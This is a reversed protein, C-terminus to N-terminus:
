HVEYYTDGFAVDCAMDRNLKLKSNLMDIAEKVVGEMIKKSRDADKVQVLLEDHWQGCIPFEVGFRDKSIKNCYAVWMDFIYSGSGQILTSFRDKETKLHYWFGNIPNYQWKQGSSDKKVTTNESITKISWNVKWYGDFLQKGTEEDVGANESITKAGASYQCAYNCTKGQSRIKDLSKFRHGEDDDLDSQDKQKAWKYWDSDGQKMLGAGVAILLHPDFDDSMQSKVYEPDLPWQFHHKLRDELSSLDSGLFTRGEDAVLLSRIEKGYAKRGSPINVLEAHKLRLTNTFAHARAQLLGGRKNASDIFGRVIGIRHNIVGLGELAKVEPVEKALRVISPCIDKDETLIQPIKKETYPKIWKPKIRRKSHRSKREADEKAAQKEAKYEEPDKDKKAKKFTEPKWGLRFLWDKVQQHSAPNPEKYSGVYELEELEKAKKDGIGQEKLFEFWKINYSNPEGNMKFMKKPRTKVKKVPVKPMVSRLEDEKDKKIEELESLLALAKPLDLKIKNNEQIHQQQMKWNLYNVMKLAKKESTYIEVMRNWFRKFLAAQINVDESCRHLYEEQSLNQWDEVEPKAIGLQEGWFQLGHKQLDLRLYYSLPLTDIIRNKVTYGLKELAPVDFCIGNHVALFYDQNNDLFEGLSEIDTFKHLKTSDVDRLVACHLKTLEDLLGDTEIDFAFVKIGM